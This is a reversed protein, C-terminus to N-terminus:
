RHREPWRIREFPWDEALWRRLFGVLKAEAGEGFLQETLWFELRADYPEDTPFLYVCGISRSTDDSLLMYCFAQHELFAVECWGMEAVDEELTLGPPWVWEWDSDYAKMGRELHDRNELFCQFDRLTHGVTMAQLHWGDKRVESPVRHELPVLPVGARGGPAAEDGDARDGAHRHPWRIREFPWERAFWLRLEAVLAEEVGAEFADATVWLDVRCDYPGQDPFLYVCGLNRDDGPERVVYAFSTRRRSEGQHWGLEALDAELTLGPPWEWGPEIEPMRVELHDRNELYCEFDSRLDAVGLMSLEWDGCRSRMPVEFAPPVLTM